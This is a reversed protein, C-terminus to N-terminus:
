RWRKDDWKYWQGGRESRREIQGGTHNKYTHEIRGVCKVLSNKVETWSSKMGLRDLLESNSQQQKCSIRGIQRYILHKLEVKVMQWNDFVLVRKYSDMCGAIPKLSRIHSTQLAQAECSERLWWVSNLIRPYFLFASTSLWWFLHVAPLRISRGDNWDISQGHLKRIMGYGPQRGQTSRQLRTANM